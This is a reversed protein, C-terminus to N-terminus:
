EKAGDKVEGALPVATQDDELPLRSADRFAPKRKGSWAWAWIGLFGALVAILVLGRVADLDIFQLTM